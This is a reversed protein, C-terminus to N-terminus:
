SRGWCYLWAQAKRLSPRTGSDLQYLSVPQNMSCGALGLLGALWLIPLRLATM